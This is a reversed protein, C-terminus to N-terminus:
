ICSRQRKRQNAEEAMRQVMLCDSEWPLSSDAAPPRNEKDDEAEVDECEELCEVLREAELQQKEAREDMDEDEHSGCLLPAEYRERRKREMEAYGELRRDHDEECEAKKKTRGSVSAESTAWATLVRRANLEYMLWCMKWEDSNPVAAFSSAHM